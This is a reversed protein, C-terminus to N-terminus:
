PSERKAPKSGEVITLIQDARVDHLEDVAGSPWDIRVVDAKSMQGLGFHLRFDNQSLYSGGSRIEDIQHHKGSICTVRAGIGSRNSGKGVARLTLWHNGNHCNGRLLTPMDNMNNIVIDVCGDNDYDGFAAGRASSPATVGAAAPKSPFM